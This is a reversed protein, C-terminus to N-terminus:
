NTNHSTDRLLRALSNWPRTGLVSFARPGCSNLRYSPVVIQHGAASHLHRTQAMDSVLVCDAALYRPCVLSVLRMESAHSNGSAENSVRQVFNHATVRFVYPYRYSTLSSSQSSTATLGRFNSVYCFTLRIFIIIISRKETPRLYSSTSPNIGNQTVGFM